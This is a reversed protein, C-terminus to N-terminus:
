DQGFRYSMSWITPPSNFGAAALGDVSYPSCPSPPPTHPKIRKQPGGANSDLVPMYNLYAYSVLGNNNPENERKLIGSFQAMSPPTAIAPYFQAFEHPAPPIEDFAPYTEYTSRPANKLRVDDNHIDPSFLENTSELLSKLQGQLVFPVNTAAHQSKLTKPAFLSQKFKTPEQFQKDSETSDFSSARRELDELRHKLKKRYNRQAIRNQIKRREVLDSVKTWDEDSSASPSFASKTKSYRRPPSLASQAMPMPM